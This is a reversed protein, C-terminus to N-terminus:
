FAIKLDSIDKRIIIIIIYIELETILSDSCVYDSLLDCPVRLDHWIEDKHNRDNENLNNTLIM